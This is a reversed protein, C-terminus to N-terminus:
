SGSGYAALDQVMANLVSASTDTSPTQANLGTMVIELISVADGNWAYYFFDTQPGAATAATGHGTWSVTWSLGGTVTATQTVVADPTIGYTTQMTHYNAACDGIQSLGAFSQAAESSNPYLLTQQSVGMVGDGVYPMEEWTEFDGGLAGCLAGYMDQAFPEVIAQGSDAWHLFADDPLQGPTLWAAAIPPPTLLHTSDYSASPGGTPASASSSAGASSSPSVASSPASPAPSASPSATHGPTATVSHAPPLTTRGSGRGQGVAAAAIGGVAAVLAVAMASAALRQRVTRQRARARAAQAGPVGTAQGARQAIDALADDFDEPMITM